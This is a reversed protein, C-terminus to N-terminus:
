FGTRGHIQFGMIDKDKACTFAAQRGDVKKEVCARRGDGEGVVPGDGWIFDWGRDPGNLTGVGYKGAQRIV